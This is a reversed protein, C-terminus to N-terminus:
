LLIVFACFVAFFVLEGRSNYIQSQSTQSSTSPSPTPTHTLPLSMAQTLPTAQTSPSPSLISVPQCPERPESSSIFPHHFHVAWSKLQRGAPIIVTITDGGLPLTPDLSDFIRVGIQTNNEVTTKNLRFWTYSTTNSNESSTTCLNSEVCHVFNTSGHQIIYM